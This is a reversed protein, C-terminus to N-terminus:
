LSSKVLSVQPVSGEGVGAENNYGEATDIHRYGIAIADRVAQAAKDNEIEWTGLGIKPIAIGNNLTYTETFISM